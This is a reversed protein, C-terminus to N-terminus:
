RRKGFCPADTRAHANAYSSADRYLNGDTGANADGDSYASANGNPCGDAAPLVGGISGLVDARRECM